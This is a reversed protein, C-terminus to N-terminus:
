LRLTTGTIGALSLYTIHSKDETINYTNIEVVFGPSGKVKLHSENGYNQLTRPNGALSIYTVYFGDGTINYTSSCLGM